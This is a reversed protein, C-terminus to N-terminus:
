KRRHGQNNVFQWTEAAEKALEASRREVVEPTWEECAEAVERPMLLASGAFVRKKAAYDRNYDAGPRNEKDAVVVMNGARHVWREPDGFEPWGVWHDESQPLVHELSCRDERLVGSGPQNRANIGFLYRRAKKADRFEIDTMRRVFNADNMVSYEDNAELDDLIDLSQFDDGEFVSKAMNAFAAEFKSPEFKPAAFATRMVFSSLNKLSRLAAQWIRRKANRDNGDIFRHLLAFVLPHSVKYGQLEGLLVTPGRKASATPLLKEFNPNPRTSTITRFLEIGEERGLGEVLEFIYDAANQSGIAKEINNRADRYFRAKQLYGYRCQLYCRFYEQVKSALRGIVLTRELNEHVTERRTSEEPGSFYSYLRNRILDVDDLPKGRANLAEFVSNADVDAPIDLVSVEVKQMLFDFFAEADATSMVDVFIEIVSWAATLLGNTGIDHGRIVQVYRSKDNRPPEIRPTYRSAQALQSTENPSREFLVRLGLMERKGDRPQRRAFRRCLAAVILSLTILRQQGDNIRRLRGGPMKVLMISGLFYCSKGAGVADRLDFLLDGVQEEKWDYYRQHWPVELRGSDLVESILSVKSTVRIM